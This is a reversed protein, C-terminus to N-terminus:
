PVRAPRGRSRSARGLARPAGRSRSRCGAPVAATPSTAPATRVSEAPRSGRVHVVDPRQCAAGAHLAREVARRVLLGAGGANAGCALPAADAEHALAARGREARGLVDDVVLLRDVTRPHGGDPAHLFEDFPQDPPADVGIAQDRVPERQVARGLRIRQHRAAIHPLTATTNSSSTFHHAGVGIPDIRRQHRADRERGARSQRDHAEAREAGVAHRWRLHRCRDATRGLDAVAVEVARGHVAVLCCIPSDRRAM